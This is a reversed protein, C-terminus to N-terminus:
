RGLMKGIMQCLESLSQYESMLEKVRAMDKETKMDRMIEKQRSTVINYRFDLDLHEVLQRLEKATPEKQFNRGLQYNDVALRHAVQSVEVDPHQTFYTEAKFGEDESHEVAEQLIRNYLDNGFSLGDNGLDYAVFQAVNMKLHGDEQTDEDIIVIEGHRIVQQILLREM